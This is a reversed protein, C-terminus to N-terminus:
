PNFPVTNKPPFLWNWLDSVEDGLFKGMGVFIQSWSADPYIGYKEYFKNEVQKRIASQYVEAAQANSLFTQVETLATKAMETLVQQAVLRNNAVIGHSKLSENAAEIATKGTQALIFDAQKENVKYRSESERIDQNIKDIEAVAKDVGALLNATTAKSKDLESKMLDPKYENEIGVGEAEADAKKAEANNKNILSKVSMMQGIFSLLDGAGSTPLGVSASKLIPKEM